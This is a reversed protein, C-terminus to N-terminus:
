TFGEHFITISSCIIFCRFFITLALINKYTTPFFSDFHTLVGNLRTTRHISIEFKGIHRSTKIDFYSFANNFGLLTFKMDKRSITIFMKLCIWTNRSIPRKDYYLKFDLQYNDLWNNGHHYFFFTSGYYFM